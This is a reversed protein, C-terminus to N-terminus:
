GKSREDLLEDYLSLDTPEVAIPDSPMTPMAKAEHLYFRVQELSPNQTRNARDVAALLPEAGTLRALQLLDVLTRELREGRYLRRFEQLEKPWQGDKLPAANQLARPRQLLLKLYHDPQYQHDHKVYTRRHSAVVRGDRLIRVEFPDAQLTVPKGVLECPVSYKTTDFRVTCDTAVKTVIPRGVEFRASPLPLLCSREDAFAERVSCKRDRVKHKERYVLCRANLTEQLDQFSDAQPRPSFAAARVIAVLNEVGGKEWGSAANCFTPEFAHHAAFLSFSHQPVANKGSGKGVASRLNDYICRRSVGGFFDFALLHGMFFSEQSQNPFAAAFIAYSYPLVACFLHVDTDVGAIVAKAEGWDVQMAEGPEFALPIFADPAIEKLRAVLRRVWSEAIAVGKEETLYRWIDTASMRQKRNPEQQNKALCELILPEVLSQLPGAKREPPKREGPLQEGRCYRAVTERSVGLTRAIYRQSRGEVQYLRRIHQYTETDITM